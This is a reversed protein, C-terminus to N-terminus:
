KLDVLAQIREMAQQHIPLLEAKKGSYFEVGFDNLFKNV